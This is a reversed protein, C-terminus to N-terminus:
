QSAGSGEVLVKLKNLNKEMMTGLIKDNMISGLREWPYWKLQQEFQWQVVTLKQTSNGILYLTALQSAGKRPTWDSIVTSDTQGKIVVDTTGLSAHTASHINVSTDDMGEIWSKWQRIDNVHPMVSDRYENVNIARSVLVKSPLLLGILSALIFLIVLSAIILKLFRM